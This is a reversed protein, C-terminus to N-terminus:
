MALGNALRASIAYGNSTKRFDVKADRLVEGGDEARFLVKGDSVVSMLTEAMLAQGASNKLVFGGKKGQMLVM